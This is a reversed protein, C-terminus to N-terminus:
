DTQKHLHEVFKEQKVFENQAQKIINNPSPITQKPPVAQYGTSIQRGKKAQGSEGDGGSNISKPSLETLEIELKAKPIKPDPQVM